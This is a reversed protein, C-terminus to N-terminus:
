PKFSPAKLSHTLQLSSTCGWRPKNFGDMEVLMQNLTQDREENLGAGRRAGIALTQNTL